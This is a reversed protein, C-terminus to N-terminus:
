ASTLTGTGQLELSYTVEGDYPAELETSTVLADGTTTKDPTGKENIRVKVKTRNRVADRLKQYKTDTPVYVGDCSVSWTYAGYDFEQAGNTSDKSTIDITEREESLTANRQGAVAVFTGPTTDEIMIVIDVGRM